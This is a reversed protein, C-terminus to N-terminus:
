LLHSQGQKNVLLMNKNVTRGLTKMQIDQQSNKKISINCAEPVQSSQLHLLDIEQKIQQTNNELKNFANRSIINATDLEPTFSHLMNGKSSGFPPVTTPGEVTEVVDLIQPSNMSVENGVHLSSEILSVTTNHGMGRALDVATKGETNQMNLNAGRKILLRVVKEHGNSAAFHLATYAENNQANIEAQENLLAEVIDIIGKSAAIHLPTDGKRNQVSVNAGRRILKEVIGINKSRVAFHLPTDCDANKENVSAQHNLLEEVIEEQVTM